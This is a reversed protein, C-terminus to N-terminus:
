IAEKHTHPKQQGSFFNMEEGKLDSTLSIVTPVYDLCNWVMVMFSQARQLQSTRIYTSSLCYPNTKQLPLFFPLPFCGATPVLSDASHEPPPPFFGQEGKDDGSAM